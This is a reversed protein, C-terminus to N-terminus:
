FDTGIRQDTGTVALVPEYEIFPLQLRLWPPSM